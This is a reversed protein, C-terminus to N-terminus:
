SNAGWVLDTYGASHGDPSTPHAFLWYSVALLWNNKDGM